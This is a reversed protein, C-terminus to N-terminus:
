NAQAGDARQLDAEANMLYGKITATIDENNLFTPVRFSPLGKAKNM